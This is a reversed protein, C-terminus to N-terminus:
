IYKATTYQQMCMQLQNHPLNEESVSLMTEFRRASKNTLENMIRPITYGYPIYQKNNINEVVEAAIGGETQIASNTSLRQVLDILRAAQLLGLRSLGEFIRSETQGRTVYRAHNINM